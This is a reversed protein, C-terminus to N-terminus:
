LSNWLDTLASIIKQLSVSYLFCEEQENNRKCHRKKNRRRILTDNSFFLEMLAEDSEAAKEVLAAHLEAAKAAQDAPIDLIKLKEAMKQM